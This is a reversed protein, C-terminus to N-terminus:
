KKKKIRSTFFTKGKVNAKQETKALYSMQRQVEQLDTLLRKTQGSLLCKHQGPTEASSSPQRDEERSKTPNEEIKKQKEEIKKPSRIIFYNEDAGNEEM